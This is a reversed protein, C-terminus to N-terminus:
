FQLVKNSYDAFIEYCKSDEEAFDFCVKNHSHGEATMETDSNGQALMEAFITVEKVVDGQEDNSVTYNLETKQLPESEHDVLTHEGRYLVGQAYPSAHPM